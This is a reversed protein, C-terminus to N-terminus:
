SDLGSTSIPILFYMYPHPRPIPIMQFWPLYVGAWIATALTQQSIITMWTWSSVQVHPHWTDASARVYGVPSYLTPTASLGHHAASVRWVAPSGSTDTADHSIVAQESCAPMQQCPLDACTPTPTGHWCVGELLLCALLAPTASIKRSELYDWYRSWVQISWIDTTLWCAYEMRIQSSSM